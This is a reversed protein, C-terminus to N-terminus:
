LSRFVTEVVIDLVDDKTFLTGNIQLRLSRCIEWLMTAMALINAVEVVIFNGGM